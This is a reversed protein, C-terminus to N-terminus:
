DFKCQVWLAPVESVGAAALQATASQMAKHLERPKASRECSGDFGVRHLCTGILLFFPLEDASPAPYRRGTEVDLRHKGASKVRPDTDENVEEACLYRVGFLVICASPKIENAMRSWGIGVGPAANGQATRPSIAQRRQLVPAPIRWGARCAVRCGLRWCRSDGESVPAVWPTAEQRGAARAGAVTLAAGAPTEFRTGIRGQLATAWPQALDGLCHSLEPLGARASDRRVAATM